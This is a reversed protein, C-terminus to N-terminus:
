CVEPLPKRYRGLRKVPTSLNPPSTWRTVLCSFLAKLLYGGQHPERNKLIFPVPVELWTLVCTFHTGWFRAIRSWGEFPNFVRWVGLLHSLIKADKPWSNGLLLNSRSIASICPMGLFSWALGLQKPYTQIRIQIWPTISHSNPTHLFEWGLEVGM